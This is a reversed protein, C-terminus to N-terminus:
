LAFYVLSIVGLALCYGAFPRLANLEHGRFYRMLLAISAYAVIASLVAGAVMPIWQGSAGAFLAPLEKVGAAVIIPTALLFSFHAAEADSLGVLLGGVITAGSRSIGPLFALCQLVGILLSQRYTM